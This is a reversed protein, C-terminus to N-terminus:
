SEEGMRAHLYQVLDEISILPIGHADAFDRLAPLRMMGGDDHVLEAIVGVPTCGALRALEVAAETHGRRERVGGDAARLPFMHGPRHLEGPVSVPNALVRATLARDSASIGTSTGEAADCSVTYATGKADQNVDTMPPLELRDAYSGPLPVCLVGSSYRVTWGTLEPTAHQAAFVIDGENERDADDVVVVARGAAIAEVAETVPNLVIDTDAAGM